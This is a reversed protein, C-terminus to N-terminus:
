ISSDDAQEHSTTAGQNEVQNEVKVDPDATESLNKSTVTRISKLVEESTSSNESVM